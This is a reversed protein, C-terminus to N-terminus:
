VFDSFFIGLVKQGHHFVVDFSVLFCSIYFAFFLFLLVFCFCFLLCFLLFIVHRCLKCNIKILNILECNHKVDIPTIRNCKTLHLKMLDNTQLQQVIFPITILIILYWPLLDIELQRQLQHVVLTKIM